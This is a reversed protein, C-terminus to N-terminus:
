AVLPVDCPLSQALPACSDRLSAMAELPGQAFLDRNAFAEELAEDAEKAAQQLEVLMQESTEVESQRAVAADAAETYLRAAKIQEQALVSHEKEKIEVSRAEPDSGSIVVSLEAARGTLVEHVQQVVMAGTSDRSAPAQGIASLIAMKVSEPIEMHESLRAAFSEAALRCDESGHITDLEVRLAEVEARKGTAEARRLELRETLTRLAKKSTQFEQAVKALAVKQGKAEEQRTQAVGRAQELEAKKSLAKEHALGKAVQAAEIQQELSGAVTALVSEIKDVAEGQFRHRQESPVGLCYPVISCLTKMVAAPLQAQKLGEVVTEFKDEPRSRKAAPAAASSNARKSAM